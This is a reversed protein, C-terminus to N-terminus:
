SRNGRRSFWRGLRGIGGFAGPASPVQRIVIVSVNDRGGAQNALNVLQDAAGQADKNERLVVAIQNDSLERTLGDSCLLLTDGDLFLEETVDVEVEPDVGVARSLVNQLNGIAAEHESMRGLRVQEAVFSHDQTLQELRNGRLGYARSDGVHAVSMRRNVFRAAVVTSGMGNHTANDRSAHFVNLNALRIASALRNSIETVGAIQTGVFDLSPDADAERCHALISDVTLRSAVEGAALGGMGDSLIFLNMEPAVLINDENNERVLGVDSRVGVDVASELTSAAALDQARNLDLSILGSYVSMADREVKM